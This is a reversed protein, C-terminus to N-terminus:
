LKYEDRVRNIVKPMIEFLRERIALYVAPNTNGLYNSIEGEVEAYDTITEIVPTDEISCYIQRVHETNEQAMGLVLSVDNNIVTQTRNGEYKVGIDYLASDRLAAEIPRMIRFAMHVYDRITVKYDPDTNYREKNVEVSRMLGNHSAKNLISVCKNYPLIYDYKRDARTGSSIISIVNQLSLEKVILNGIVEGVPSRGNNGTCCVEIIHM